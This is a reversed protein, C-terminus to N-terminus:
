NSKMVKGNKDIVTQHSDDKITVEGTEPKLAIEKPIFTLQYNHSWALGDSRYIKALTTHYKERNLQESYLLVFFIQGAADAYTVGKTVPLKRERFSSKDVPFIVKVEPKRIATITYFYGEANTSDNFRLGTTYKEDSTYLTRYRLPRTQKKLPISDAGDVIWELAKLRVKLEDDKKRREREAYESLTKVYSKLVVPSSYTNTIFHNYDQAKEDINEMSLRKSISDLKHLFTMETNTMALKMHVDSTDKHVKNEILASRYELDATKLSFVEMPLPAPDFKRLQDYLLKDILKTLDSRVSISDTNLKDRLKNIEIDYAILHDRMPLIEKEIVELVEDAFKKYDWANVEDIYFSVVDDGDKAFDKIEVLTFTQNYGTKGLTLSSSKYNDFAKTCSDFRTSLTHLNKVTNEDARLHLQRKAPYEKQLLRFLSNSKKYLTDALSFYHKIMKVKDSRERLFEIRKEIDFQIDSLKVGFEGTRLDRRNYAQYYEKNKRVERDDITKLAKDFFLIASDAYAVSQETRKLIDIKSVKEQFIIGMFLYANPNDDNEKLYKKLFPEAQEYQKTSLLAFIDKYKVKQGYATQVLFFLVIFKLFVVKTM